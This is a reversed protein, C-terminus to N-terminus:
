FGAEANSIEIIHAVDGACLSQFDELSLGVARAALRQSTRMESEALVGGASIKLAQVEDAVAAMDEGLLERVVVSELLKGGIIKPKRLQYVTGNKTSEAAATNEASAKAATSKKPSM